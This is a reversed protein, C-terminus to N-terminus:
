KRPRPDFDSPYCRWVIVYGKQAKKGNEEAQSICAARTEFGGDPSMIIDTGKGDKGLLAFDQWLIWVVSLVMVMKRM